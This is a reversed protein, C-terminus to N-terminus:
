HMNGKGPLGIWTFMWGLLFSSVLVLIFDHILQADLDFPTLLMFLRVFM